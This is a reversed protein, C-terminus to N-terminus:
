EMAAKKKAKKLADNLSEWVAVRVAPKKDKFWSVSDAGAEGLIEVVTDAWADSDLAGALERIEEVTKNPGDDEAEVKKGPKGGKAGAAATAKGAAPASTEGTEAVGSFAAIAAYKRAIVDAADDAHFTVQLSM